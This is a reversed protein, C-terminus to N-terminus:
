KNGDKDTPKSFKDLAAAIQAPTIRKSILAVVAAITDCEAQGTTHFEIRSQQEAEIYSVKEVYEIELLELTEEVERIFKLHNTTYPISAAHLM